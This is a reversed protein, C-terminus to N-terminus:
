VCRTIAGHDSTTVAGVAFLLDLALVIMELSPHSPLQEGAVRADVADKLADLTMPQRLVDLILAGIGLISEALRVHKSPLLTNM